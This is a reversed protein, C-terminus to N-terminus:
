PPNTARDVTKSQDLPLSEQSPTSTSELDLYLKREDANYGLLEAYRGWRVISKFMTQPKETPLWVALEEL